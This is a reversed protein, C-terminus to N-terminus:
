FVKPAPMAVNESETLETLERVVCLHHERPSITRAM